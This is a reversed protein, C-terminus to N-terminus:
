TIEWGAVQESGSGGKQSTYDVQVQMHGANLRNSEKLLNQIDLAQDFHNGIIATYAQRIKLADVLTDPFGHSTWLQQMVALDKFSMPALDSMIIQAHQVAEIVVSLRKEGPMIFELSDENHVSDIRINNNTIHTFGGNCTRKSAQTDHGDQSPRKLIPKAEANANEM